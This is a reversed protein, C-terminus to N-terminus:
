EVVDSPLSPASTPPERVRTAQEFAYAYGILRSESFPPGSFTVGYPAPEANFGAPFPTPPTLPPPPVAPNAIFGGPVVISPYGARAAIAAGRNAPFLVADCSQYMVDLGKTRALDLDRTRDAHYRATDSSGARTDLAQAALLIDQGYKLGVQEGGAVFANNFAIVDALSSVVTKGDAAIGPGFDALYANLDRKFGYVLVTSCTAPFPPSVVCTGVNNLEQADPIDAPDDVIAGQARLVAIADNMVKQIEASIVTQGSANTWYRLHPVAIRAGKLAHNNLFPTYDKLCRGPTLCAITAPDAPDYGALVSLLKAADTVTRAIPGATDQDATIPIIGDRSILGVTPKIGVLMNATGPSLISGSTETGVGIAALNAAVAIGPGSSSGGPTLVPRGDNFPRGLADPANRPDYPNYGYGGLSSYGAPMGNTLFNAFETMTAKGLIVAGARLLKRTVFADSRPISGAFAVSGATTPMKKTNINDKLIIPIGFLPRENDEGDEDEGAERADRVADQNVHIYSNLHAATTKADYAAIRNLYMRVLQEPTIIRDHIAQQISPITAEILDFRGSRHRHDARVGSGIAVLAIAAVVGSGRLLIRLRKM